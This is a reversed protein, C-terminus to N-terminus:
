RSPQLVGNQIPIPGYNNVPVYQGNWKEAEIKQIELQRLRIELEMNAQVSQNYKRIGEGEAAKAEARLIAAAKEGEAKAILASKEAEALKVQKQANQETLLLDQEAQKVQQARDMTAQIQQDFRESWDYNQIRLETIEVPYNSTIKTLREWVRGRIEEQKTAVEFITYTGIGEKFSQKLASRLRNEVSDFNETKVIEVLRNQDWRYYLALDAGITQNDSTIAGDEGVPVKHEVSQVTLPIEKISQMIPVRFHLGQDLLEDQVAGWSYVLGKSGAKVQVVPNIMLFVAIFLIALIFVGVWKSKNTM